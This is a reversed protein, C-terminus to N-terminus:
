EEEGKWSPGANTIDDAVAEIRWGKAYITGRDDSDGGEWRIEGDLHRDWPIFFHHLLYDLWEVYNYFKEGEDWMLTTGDDSVTWQCWLSPQGKPPQNFNVVSEDSSQGAFGGAGVFYAGQEGVPLGVAERVEDKLKVAVLENRAMRRTQNFKQIYAVQEKTLPPTISLEGSFDTHYGM